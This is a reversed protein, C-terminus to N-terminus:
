EGFDLEAIIKNLRGQEGMENKLASNDDSKQSARLLLSAIYADSCEKIKGQLLELHKDVDDPTRVWTEIYLGEEPQVKAKLKHKSLLANFEHAWDLPVKHSFTFFLDIYPQKRIVPPRKSDVAVIKIDSIGEM